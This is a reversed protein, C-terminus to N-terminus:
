APMLLLAGWHFGAGFAAFVVPAEIRGAGKWWEAAAVLLSASSTNGYRDVNVFFRADPVDLSKAARTLLNLNAQHVVFTGVDAPSLGHRSLVDGIIRPLKRAAQLIVLRGNMELPRDFDLRLADTYGGDSALLSDAIVAFGSTASVLCAGAGDGFLIATDKSGSCATSMVETGIVLVNRYRPCLDAALAMAFLSGASAIPLDIAPVEPMGLAVGIEAAPGPFRRQATGSSVLILGPTETTESLCAKAAEVGLSVVSEEPAAYRRERIGTVQVIWDPDAGVQGGIEVNDVTRAPVYYGLSHLYAM